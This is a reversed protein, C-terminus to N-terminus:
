RKRVYVSCLYGVYTYTYTLIEYIYSIWTGVNRVVYGTYYLDIPNFVKPYRM